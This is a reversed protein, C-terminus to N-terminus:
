MIAVWFGMLNRRRKTLVKLRTLWSKLLFFVRRSNWKLFFLGLFQRRSSYLLKQAHSRTRNPQTSLAWGRRAEVKKCARWNFIAGRNWTTDHSSPPPVQRTLSLGGWWLWPQWSRALINLRKAKYFNNGVGPLFIWCRRRGSITALEQGPYDYQKWSRALINLM